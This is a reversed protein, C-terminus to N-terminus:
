GSAFEGNVRARMELIKERQEDDSLPDEVTIEEVPEIVKRRPWGDNNAFKVVLAYHDPVPNKASRLWISVKDLLESTREYTKVLADYEPRTLKVNEFSGFPLFDHYTDDPTQFLRGDDDNNTDNKTDNDNDNDNDNPNNKKANPQKPQKSANKNGKPAGGLAGNRRNIECRKEYKERDLKAQLSMFDFAMGIDPDVEPDGGEEYEFLAVMLRGIQEPDLWKRVISMQDHYIITSDKSKAM